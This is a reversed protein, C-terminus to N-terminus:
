GAWPRFTYSFSSNKLTTKSPIQKNRIKCGLLVNYMIKIIFCETQPTERLIYYLFSSTTNRLGFLFTKNPGLLSSTVPSHLLNCLSSSFSKYQEGLITRTIATIRFPGFEHNTFGRCVTLYQLAPRPTVPYVRSILCFKKYIQHTTSRADYNLTSLFFLSSTM